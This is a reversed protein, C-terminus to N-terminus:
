ATKKIESHDFKGALLLQASRKSISAQPFHKYDAEAENGLKKAIARRFFQSEGNELLALRGNAGDRRLHTVYFLYERGEAIRSIESSECDIWKLRSDYEDVVEAMKFDLPVAHLHAHDTGCGTLSGPGSPGHEFFVVNRNYSAVLRAKVSDVFDWFREDRFSSLLNIEHDNPCILSWGDVLAGVSVIASYDGEMLWPRDVEDLVREPHSFYGCFRCAETEQRVHFFTSDTVMGKKLM